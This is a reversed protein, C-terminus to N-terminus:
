LWKKQKFYEYEYTWDDKRFTVLEKMRQLMAEHEKQQDPFSTKLAIADALDMGLKYSSQVAHKFTEDGESLNAGVRGVVSAGMIFLSHNLYDAVEQSGSGGATSVAASYKGLLRQCHVTDAMRDLLTKMKATVNNIYNPSGLIIGDSELIIEYIDPFEDMLVCTGTKYCSDCATCYEIEFDYLNLHVTESKKEKAGKLAASLLLDTNSNKRPSSNIGVVKMYNM